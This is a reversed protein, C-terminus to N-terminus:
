SWIGGINNGLSYSMKPVIRSLGKGLSEATRIQIKRLTIMESETAPPRYAGSRYLGWALDRLTIGPAVERALWAEPRVYIVIYKFLNHIKHDLTCILVPVVREAM